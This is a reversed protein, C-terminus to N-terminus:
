VVSERVIMGAAETRNSSEDVLRCVNSGTRWYTLPHRWVICRVWPQDGKPLICLLGQTM